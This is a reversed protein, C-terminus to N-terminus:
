QEEKPTAILREIYEDIRNALEGHHWMTGDELIGFEGESKINTRRRAEDLMYFIVQSPKVPLSNSDLQSDDKSM